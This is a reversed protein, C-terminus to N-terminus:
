GGYAVMAMGHVARAETGVNLSGKLILFQAPAKEKVQELGKLSDWLSSPSEPAKAPEQTDSGQSDALIEIEKMPAFSGSVSWPPIEIQLEELSELGGSSSSPLEVVKVDYTEEWRGRRDHMAAFWGGTEPGETERQLCIFEGNPSWLAYIRNGPKIGELVGESFSAVQRPIQKKEYFITGSTKRRNWYFEAPILGYRIEIDQRKRARDPFLTDTVFFLEDFGNPIYYVFRDQDSTFLLSKEELNLPTEPDKKDKGRESLLYKTTGPFFLWSHAQWKTKENRPSASAPMQEMAVVVCLPNGQLSSFYVLYEGSLVDRDHGVVADKGLCGCLLWLGLVGCLLRVYRKRQGVM